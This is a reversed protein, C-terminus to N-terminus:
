VQQTCHFGCVELKSVVLLRWSASHLLCLQTNIHVTNLRVSPLTNAAIVPQASTDAQAIVYVKLKM